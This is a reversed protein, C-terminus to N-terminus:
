RQVRTNSVSATPRNSKGGLEDDILRTFADPPQAGSLTVGNIFFGPTGHVGAKKGEESDKEIEAKAIATAKRTTMGLLSRSNDKSNNKNKGNSKKNDDGFPIQQEGRGAVVGPHGM